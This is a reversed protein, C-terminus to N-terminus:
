SVPSSPGPGRRGLPSPRMSPRSPEGERPEVGVSVAMVEPWPAAGIPVPKLGAPLYLPHAPQGAATLRLARPAVGWSELRRLVVPGRGRVRGMGGRVPRGHTGWACVVLAARTAHRRLYEENDPGVPDAARWLAGPDTARLAYLNTIVLGGYGWARAFAVCRRVPPDDQVADATSPNLMVFNV